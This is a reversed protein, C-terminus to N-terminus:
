AKRLMSDLSLRGSGSITLSVSMALLALAFEYGNASIFFGNPWHVLILAVLMLLSSVLAIPRTLLGVIIALGGFFEIGGALMAMSFGPQLGISAMWQGTAELGYGGWWGFLKQAGHAVFITGFALRIPVDTVKENGDFLINM